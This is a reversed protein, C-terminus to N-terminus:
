KGIGQVHENFKCDNFEAESTISDTLDAGTLDCNEVTCDTFNSKRLSVGNFNCNKLTSGTFDAGTLDEGRFDINEITRYTLDAEEVSIPDQGEEIWDYEGTAEELATSVRVKIIYPGEINLNKDQLDEIYLEKDKETFIYDEDYESRGSRALDEYYQEMAEQDAYSFVEEYTQPLGSVTNIFIIEETDPDLGYEEYIKRQRPTLEM